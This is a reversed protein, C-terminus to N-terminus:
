PTCLLPSLLFLLLAIIAVIIALGGLVRWPNTRKREEEVKGVGLKGLCKHDCFWKGEIQVAFISTAEKGCVVCRKPVKKGCSSCYYNDGLQLKGTILSLKKGCTTCYPGEGKQEPRWGIGRIPRNSM